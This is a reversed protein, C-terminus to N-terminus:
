FSWAQNKLAKPLVEMLDQDLSFLGFCINKKQFAKKLALQHMKLNKLYTKRASAIDTPWQSKNELDIFTQNDKFDFDQEKRGLIQFVFLENNALSWQNINDILTATEGLFDSIVVIIEDSFHLKNLSTGKLNESTKAIELEHLCANLNGRSEIISYSNENFFALKPSDGQRYATQAMTGALLKAFDFRNTNAESYDMSLSVDLLIHVHLRRDATSQRTILKGSQMYKKWDISKLDDGIQYSRYQDFEIGAGARTSAHLGLEIQKSILKSKLKLSASNSKFQGSFM